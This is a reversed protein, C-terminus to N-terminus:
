KEILFSFSRREAALQAGGREHRAFIAFYALFGASPFEFTSNQNFTASQKPRTPVLLASVLNSQGRAAV